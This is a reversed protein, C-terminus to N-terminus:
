RPVPTLAPRFASHRRHRLLQASHQYLPMEPVSVYTDWPKPEPAAWVDALTKGDRHRGSQYKPAVHYRRASRKGKCGIQALDVEVSVDIEPM